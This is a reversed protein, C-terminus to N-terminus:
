LLFRFHEVIEYYQVTYFNDWCTVRVALPPIMFSIVEPSESHPIVEPTYESHPIVAPTYERHPIM